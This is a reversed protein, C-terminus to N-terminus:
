VDPDLLWTRSRSIRPLACERQVAVACVGDAALSGRSGRRGQRWPVDMDACRPDEVRAYCRRLRLGANGGCVGCSGITKKM